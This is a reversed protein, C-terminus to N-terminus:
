FRSDPVLHFQDPLDRRRGLFTVGSQPADRGIVWAPFLDAHLHKAPARLGTFQRSVKGFMPAVLAHYM